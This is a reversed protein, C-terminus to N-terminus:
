AALINNIIKKAQITEPVDHVRWIHAGSLYAYIESSVSGIIRNNVDMQLSKGIFSKRSVGALIPKGIFTFDKIDRLLEFNHEATKGFGFGPDIIVQSNNLKSIECSKNELFRYIEEHLDEYDPNLQMDRPTGKIHMIILPCNFHEIVDKMKADFITGSIDNIIHAGANLAAEAVESKYTDISILGRPNHRSVAEIIPIVRNLEETITVPEAGPRTSEGGIDLIDAGNEFIELAYEVAKNKEFFRGGDSFSDPTVNLIGMILPSKSFDLEVQGCKWCKKDSYTYYNVVRKFFDNIEVDNFINNQLDLFFQRDALIKIVISQDMEYVVSIFPDYKKAANQMQEKQQLKLKDLKFLHDGVRINGQGWQSFLKQLRQQNTVYIFRDNM